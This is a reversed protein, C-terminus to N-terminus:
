KWQAIYSPIQSYAADLNSAPIPTGLVEKIPVVGAWVPWAIDEGEDHPEANSLKASWETIEFSLVSTAAIEKSTMPRLQATRQPFLGEIITILDSEKDSSEAFNGFLVVSRYHISSEFGSRALVLGDLLTMEICVDVGSALKRFWGSGTSGHILLRKGDRVYATPLVRPKGDDGTFGVHCIRGADLFSLMTSEDSVEKHTLRTLQTRESM